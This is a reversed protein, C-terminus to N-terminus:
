RHLLTVALQVLQSILTVWAAALLLEERRGNFRKGFRWRKQKSATKNKV